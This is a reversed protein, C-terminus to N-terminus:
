RTPNRQQQHGGAGPKQHAMAGTPQSHPGDCTWYVDASRETGSEDREGLLAFACRRFNHELLFDRVEMLDRSEEASIRARCALERCELSVIRHRPKSKAVQPLMGQLEVAAATAWETGTARGSYDAAFKKRVKALMEDQRRLREELTLPPRPSQPQSAPAMNRRAEAVTRTDGKATWRGGLIVLSGIGIVGVVSCLVMALMKM